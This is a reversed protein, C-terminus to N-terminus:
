QFATTLARARLNGLPVGCSGQHKHENATPELPGNGLIPVGPCVLLVAFMVVGLAVLFQILFIVLLVVCLM